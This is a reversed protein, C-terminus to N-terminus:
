PKTTMQKLRLWDTNRPSIQRVTPDTAPDLLKYTEAHGDAFNLGYGRRHRLAPFSAFPRSDDMTVQFWADDISAEEEDAVMWLGAAGAAALESEKVFTRYRTGQRASEMYRSGIWSNMAYSRVRPQGDSQSVDAPCHFVEVQSAYPFYKSQRILSANTADRVSKMSGRVWSNTGQPEPLNIALLGNHDAAYMQSCLALQRLNSVCQIGKATAKARNLAPLLLAALVAIIAIVVLLEILTFGALTVKRISCDCGHAV